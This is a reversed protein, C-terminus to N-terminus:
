CASFGCSHCKKCGEQFALTGIGCAPCKVGYNSEVTDKKSTKTKSLSRAAAYKKLAKALADPMSVIKGDGTPMIHTTGIGELQEIVSQISAGNKLAMSALRCIGELDAAILDGAKGLQAFIERESQGQEDLVVQVHLNGFQTKIQTRFAPYVDTVVKEEEKVTVIAVTEEKNKFDAPYIYDAVTTKNVFVDKIKVSGNSDVTLAKAELKPSVSMPQKMGAVNNRCGDRYVTIGKCGLKYALEYAEKVDEVTADHSLNITKSISTDINEQWAAQMRVHDAPAIEHATVFVSKLKGYYVHDNQNWNGISGHDISYQFLDALEDSWDADGNSNAEQKGAYIAAQWYKNVEHMEKFVGHADPMVTRKFALAFIPEIGCSCDAIISITGTPAVTTRFANRMMRKPYFSSKEWAGFPGKEKAIKESALDAYHMLKDGITRAIARAEESDYAVNLSFLLDAFGMVGLGIRRTLKSMKEIEPIPYKNVEIVNDLFRVAIDVVYSFKKTDFEKRELFKSLNISGLNCSDYPHLPQEGCPNTAEIKGLAKIPNTKENVDVFFLGPEGTSWARKCILDWTEGVTWYRWEKEDPKEQVKDYQDVVKFAKIDGNKNVRLEGIGWEKHEVRHAINRSAHLSDMFHNTMVISINYNQWRNLDEKAKIFEIIDPHDVNMMGMNAGRRFAGQQITNTTQSFVDIFSLPGATTGGSSKVISNSPRLASFNFGTGGGARQVMATAHVSNFIENLDDEVPLVFCASLM